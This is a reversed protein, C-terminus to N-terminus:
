DRNHARQPLGTGAALLKQRAKTKHVEFCDGAKLNDYVEKSVEIRGSLGRISYTTSGSRESSFIGKDVLKEMIVAKEGCQIDKSMLGARLYFLLSFFALPLGWFGLRMMLAQDWTYRDAYLVIECTIGMGFIFVVAVYFIRTKRRQQLDRLAALEEDTLPITKMAADQGGRVIDFPGLEGIKEPVLGAVTKNKIINKHLIINLKESVQVDIRDGEGAEFYLDKHEFSVDGLRIIYSSYNDRDGAVGSRSVQELRGTVVGKYVRKKNNNLELNLEQKFMVLVLVLFLALGAGIFFPVLLEPDPYYINFLVDQGRNITFNRFSRISGAISYSYVAYASIVAGISFLSTMFYYVIKRKQAFRARIIRIDEETLPLIAKTGNEYNGASQGEDM